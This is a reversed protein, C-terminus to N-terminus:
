RAGDGTLIVKITKIIIIFDLLLSRNQIYYLDYKLKEKPSIDYGGNVQAWGTLGPKTALRNTFGPIEKNFQETFIPREPRPGIISMDGMIVNLFQPLEDIRTKRIFTGIKTVRSDNKQAWQPGDKEADVKMSRLKIINFYRGNLGVREQLFFVSGPSEIKILIGILILIPLTMFLGILSFSIDFLRKLLFYSLPQDIKSPAQSIDNHHGIEKSNIEM